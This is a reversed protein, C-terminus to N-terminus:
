ANKNSKTAIVSYPGQGLRLRMAVATESCVGQLERSADLAPDLEERPMKEFGFCPFFAEATETLLYVTSVGREKASDLLMTVLRGGLGQGRASSAVALSRLLGAERYRELGITGILTENERAVLFGDLNEEVGEIPLECTRLLTLVEALDGREARRITTSM